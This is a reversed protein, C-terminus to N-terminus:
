LFLIGARHTGGQTAAEFPPHLLPFQFGLHLLFRHERLVMRGPIHQGEIEDVQAFQPDRNQALRKRMQHKVRDEGTRVPFGNMAAVRFRELSQRQAQLIRQVRGAAHRPPHPAVAQGRRDVIQRTIALELRPVGCEQCVVAQFAVPNVDALGVLVAIHLRRVSM